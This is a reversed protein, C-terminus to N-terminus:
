VLMLPQRDVGSEGRKRQTDGNRGPRRDRRMMIRQAREVGRFDDLDLAHEGPDLPHVRVRVEGSIYFIYFVHLIGPASDVLQTHSVWNERTAQEARNAGLSRLNPSIIVTSPYRAFPPDRSIITRRIMSGSPRIM